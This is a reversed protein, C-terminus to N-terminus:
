TGSWGAGVSATMDGAWTWPLGAVGPEEVLEDAFM